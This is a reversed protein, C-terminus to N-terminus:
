ERYIKLASQVRSKNSKSNKGLHPRSGLRAALACLSAAAVAVPATAIISQGGTGHVSTRVPHSPTATTICARKKPLMNCETEQRKM